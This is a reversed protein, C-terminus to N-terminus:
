VHLFLYCVLLVHAALADQLDYATCSKDRGAVVPTAGALRIDTLISHGYNVVHCAPIVVRNPMDSSDPLSAIKGPNDGAM